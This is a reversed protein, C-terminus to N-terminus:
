GSDAQASLRGSGTYVLLLVGVLGSIDLLLAPASLRGEGFVGAGILSLAVVAPVPNAVLQGLFARLGWYGSLLPATVTEGLPRNGDPNEAREFGDFAEASVTHVEGTNIRRGDADGVRLLTVDDETTGVVRYVGASLTGEPPRYHEYLAPESM